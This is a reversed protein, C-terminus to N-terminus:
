TVPTLKAALSPEERLLSSTLQIGLGAAMTNAIKAALIDWDHERAVKQRDTRRAPGDEERSLSHEIAHSWEECTTAIGIVHSFDSM